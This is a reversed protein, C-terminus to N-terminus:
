ISSKKSANDKIGKLKVVSLLGMKIRRKLDGERRVM